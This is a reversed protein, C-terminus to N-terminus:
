GQSRSRHAQLTFWVPNQNKDYQVVMRYSGGMPKTGLLWYSDQGKNNAKYLRGRVDSNNTDQYYGLSQVGIDCANFQGQDETILIARNQQEDIAGWEFTYIFGSGQEDSFQGSPAEKTIASLNLRSPSGHERLDTQVRSQQQQQGQPQQVQTM